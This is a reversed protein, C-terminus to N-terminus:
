PTITRVCRVRAYRTWSLSGAPQYCLSQGTSMDVMGNYFWALAFSSWCRSSHWYHNRNGLVNFNGIRDRQNFIAVLESDTPLRWDNYGGVFSNDCLRIADNRSIPDYVIDRAQVMLEVDQLIVFDSELIIEEGYATWLEDEIKKMYKKRERDSKQAELVPQYERFKIGALKAYPYVKL